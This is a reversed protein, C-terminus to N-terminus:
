FTILSFIPHGTLRERGKLDSLEIVFCLEDVIGGLKQVMRCSAEATGGTALLDDIIVVRDDKEISDVHMELVEEGYELAYKESIKKWPLKGKKRIPVFGVGIKYSLVSGFIFGRSEMAAVKDIDRDEYRDSITDCIATFIQTSLLAPTIDRFMVGDKPFDPVNRIYAEIDNM